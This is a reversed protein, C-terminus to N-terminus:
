KSLVTYQELIDTNEPGRMLTFNNSFISNKQCKARTQTIRRYYLKLAQSCNTYSVLDNVVKFYSPPNNKWGIAQFYLSFHYMIKKFVISASKKGYRPYVGISFQIGNKINYKKDVRARYQNILLKIKRINNQLDIDAYWLKILRICCWIQYRPEPTLAIIYEQSLVLEAESLLRQDINITKQLESQFLIHKLVQHRIPRDYEGPGLIKLKPNHEDDDLLSHTIWEELPIDKRFIHLYGNYYTFYLTEYFSNENSLKFTKELQEQIKDSEKQLTNTNNIFKTIMSEDAILIDQPKTNMELTSEDINKDSSSVDNGELMKLLVIRNSRHEEDEEIISMTTSILPLENKYKEDQLFSFDDLDQSAVLDHLSVKTNPDGEPDNSAEHYFKNSLTSPRSRIDDYIFENDNQKYNEGNNIANHIAKDSVYKWGDSELVIMYKKPDQSSSIYQKIRNDQNPYEFGDVLNIIMCKDEEVVKIIKGFFIYDITDSHAIIYKGVKPPWSPNKNPDLSGPIRHM